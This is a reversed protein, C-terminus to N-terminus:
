GGYYAYNISGVDTLLSLYYITSFEIEIYLLKEKQFELYFCIILM